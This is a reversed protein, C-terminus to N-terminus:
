PPGAPALSYKRRLPDPGTVVITETRTQYGEQELRLRRRGPQVPHDTVPTPGIEVDDIYLMGWPESEVTLRVAERKVAKKAPAVIASDLAATGSQGWRSPDRLGAWAAGGAIVSFGLVLLSLSLSRRSRTRLPKMPATTAAAPSRREGSVATAFEEMTAFRHEPEKALARELASVLDRPVDPRVDLVPPPPEFVHKYLISHASGDFPQKGTLLQHGVVALSYQDARGDIELGKAQEPAM